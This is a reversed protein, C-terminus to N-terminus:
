GPIKVRESLDMDLYPYAGYGVQMLCLGAAPAAYLNATKQSDLLDRFYDVTFRGRAVDTMTGVLRRVMHRLFRDAVIHFRWEDARLEWGAAYIRCKFNQRGGGQPLDQEAGSFARFHHEGLLYAASHQLLDAKLHFKPHWGLYRELTHPQLFLRYRYWRWRASYRAHFDSQVIQAKQVRVDPPLTGNLAIALREPTFKAPAEFHAVQGLAHVGTDTRGAGYIRIESGFLQLLAAEIVGQVTRCQPQWQWGLSATGDYEINLRYRLPNILPEAIKLAQPNLALDLVPWFSVFM